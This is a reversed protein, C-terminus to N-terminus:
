GNWSLICGKQSETRNIKSSSQGSSDTTGLKQRKQRNGTVAEFEVQKSKLYEASRVKQQIRTLDQVVQVKKFEDHRKLNKLNSMMRRKVISNPLLLRVPRPNGNKVEAGVRETELSPIGEPMLIEILKRLLVEGALNEDIGFVILNNRKLLRYREEEFDTKLEAVTKQLEERTVVHEQQGELADLRYEMDQMRTGIGELKKTAEAHQTVLLQMLERLTPEPDVTADKLPM